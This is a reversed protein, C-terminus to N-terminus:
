SAGKSHSAFLVTDVGETLTILGQTLDAYLNKGRIRTVKHRIRV